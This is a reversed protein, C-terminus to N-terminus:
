VTIDDSIQKLFYVTILGSYDDVFWISHLCGHLSPPSIQDSLDSHFLELSSTAKLDPRNNIQQSMMAEVCVKCEFKDKNSIKM